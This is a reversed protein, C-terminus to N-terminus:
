TLVANLYPCVGLPKEDSSSISQESLESNAGLYVKLGFYGRMFDEMLHNRDALDIRNKAYLANLQGITRDVNLLARLLFSCDSTCLYVPFPSAPVILEDGAAPYSSAVEANFMEGTSMIDAIMAHIIQRTPAHRTRKCLLIFVFHLDRRIIREIQWSFCAIRRQATVRINLAKVKQLNKLVKGDATLFTKSDLELLENM